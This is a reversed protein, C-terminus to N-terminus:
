HFDLSTTGHSGAHPSRDRLMMGGASAQYCHVGVGGEPVAFMVKGTVNRPDVPDADITNNADGKTVFSGSKEIKIVRHVVNITETRYEIIDGLKINEPSVKIVMVIDGPNFVPVMSGTPIVSPKVPFLGVAFWALLLSALATLIWGLPFSNETEWEAWTAGRRWWGTSWSCAPSRCWPGSSRRSDGTWTAAPRARVVLIGGADRSLGPFGEPRGSAGAPDALLNESLLPLWESGAMDVSGVDLRFGTIKALPISMLTYLVAVLALALSPHRRGIRNVLWARSLEMGVLSSSVYLLNIGIGRPTFSYPSKGFGSFLGGIAFLAVQSFGILVAAQLVERRIKIRALPRYSPLRWAALAVLAWLGAQAVYTWIAAGLDLRPLGLNIALYVGAM